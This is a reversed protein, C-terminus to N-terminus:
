LGMARVSPVVRDADSDDQVKRPTLPHGLAELEAAVAEVLDPIADDVDPTCGLGVGVTEPVVGILVLTDPHRGTLHAGELLDIVGVQHVSLRQAVAPAVEDGQVRVITGPRQDPVRIADVLLVAGAEEILPLLQLGLTGGDMVRVDDRLEYRQLLGHVAKVGAGDDSCLVNGLGLVLVPTRDVLPSSPEAM